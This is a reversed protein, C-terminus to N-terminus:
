LIRSMIYASLDDSLACMLPTRLAFTVDNRFPFFVADHNVGDKRGNKYVLITRNERPLPSSKCLHVFNQVDEPRDIYYLIVDYNKRASEFGPHLDSPFNEHRIGRFKDIKLKKLDIM